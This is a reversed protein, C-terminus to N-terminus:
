IASCRGVLECDCTVSDWLALFHRALRHGDAIQDV